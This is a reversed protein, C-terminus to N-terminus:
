SSRREIEKVEALDYEPCAGQRGAIFAGLANAFTLAEAPTKENAMKYLYGALFADGSGVTDAVIVKYGEHYFFTGDQFLLAGHEGRTVLITDISFKEYLIRVQDEISHHNKFWGSILKVEHENLKLIDARPLLNILSSQSFHPPRLNIDLVKTNAIELLQLLTKESQHNRAALSGFVFYAADNVLAALGNQWTIFDWAVPYVIEYEVENNGQLAANVLGTSHEEDIQLYETSVGQQQLLLQLDNGWKDKGIRTIIATQLGLKQLHYAVNMPAGGPKAGSPLIDWLVEGFCVVNHQNM